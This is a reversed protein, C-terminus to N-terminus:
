HDISRMNSYRVMMEHYIGRMFRVMMRKRMKDYKLKVHGHFLEGKEYSAMASETVVKNWHLRHELAAPTGGEGSWMRDLTVFEADLNELNDMDDTILYKHMIESMDGQAWKLRFQALALNGKAKAEAKQAKTTSNKQTARQFRSEASGKRKLAGGSDIVAKLDNVHNQVAEPLERLDATSARRVITNALLKILQKDLVLAAKGSTEAYKSAGAETAEKLKDGLVKLTESLSPDEQAQAEIGEMAQAEMGEQGLMRGQASFFVARAILRHKSWHAEM